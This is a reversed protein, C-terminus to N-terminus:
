SKVEISLARITGTIRARSESLANLELADGSINLIGQDTQLRVSRADFCLIGRHQEVLCEDAGYWQVFFRSADMDQPLDAIELIRRLFRRKPKM